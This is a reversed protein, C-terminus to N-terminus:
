RRLLAKIFLERLAVDLCKFRNQFRRIFVGGDDQEETRANCKRLFFEFVAPEEKICTLEPGAEVLRAKWGLFRSGVTGKHQVGCKRVVEAADDIWRHHGFGFRERLDDLSDPFPIWLGRLFVVRAVFELFSQGLLVSLFCGSWVTSFEQAAHAIEGCEQVVGLIKRCKM